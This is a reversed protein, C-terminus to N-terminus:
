YVINNPTLLKEVLNECPSNEFALTSESM